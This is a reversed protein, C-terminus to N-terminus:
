GVDATKEDSVPRGPRGVALGIMEPPVGAQIAMQTLEDMTRPPTKNTVGMEVKKEADAGVLKAVRTVADLVLKAGSDTWKSDNEEVSKRLIEYSMGILREAQEDKWDDSKDRRIQKRFRKIAAAVFRPDADLKASIADERYAKLWLDRIKEELEPNSDM